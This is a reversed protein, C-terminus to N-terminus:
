VKPLKTILDVLEDVTHEGVIGNDMQEDSDTESDQSDESAHEEQGVSPKQVHASHLKTPIANDHQLVHDVDTNDQEWAAKWLMITERVKSQSDSMSNNQALTRNLFLSIKIKMDRIANVTVKDFAQVIKEQRQEFQCRVQTWAKQFIWAKSKGIFKEM